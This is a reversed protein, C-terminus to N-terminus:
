KCYVDLLRLGAQVAQINEEVVKAKPDGSQLIENRTRKCSENTQPFPFIELADELQVLSQYDEVTRTASNNKGIEDLLIKRSRQVGISRQLLDEHQIEKLCRKEIEAMYASDGYVLSLPSMCFLAVSFARVLKPSIM